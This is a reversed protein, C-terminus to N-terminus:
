AAQHPGTRYKSTDSVFLESVKRPDDYYVGVTRLSPALSCAETFISGCDKYPGRAFKYAITLSKVAPKGTGVTIDCLLGCHVAYFFLTALISLSIAAIGIFLITSPDMRAPIRV